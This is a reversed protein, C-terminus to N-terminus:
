TSDFWAGTKYAGGRYAGTKDTHHRRVHLQAGALGWVALRELVGDEVPNDWPEHKLHPRYLRCLGDPQRNNNDYRDCVLAGRVVRPADRVSAFSTENETTRTSWVRVHHTHYVATTTACYSVVETAVKLALCSMKVAFVFTDVALSPPM